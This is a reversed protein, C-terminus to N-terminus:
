EIILEAHLSGNRHLAKIIDIIDAPPVRIANLATVLSKLKATNTEQPDIAVFTEAGVAGGTEILIGSKHTVAVPGIEADGSIVISGAREYIVVRAGPRPSLIPAALM